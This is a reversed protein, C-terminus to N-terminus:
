AGEISWWKSSLQNQVVSGGRFGDGKVERRDKGEGIRRDISKLVRRSSLRKNNTKEEERV